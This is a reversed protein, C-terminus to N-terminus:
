APSRKSQVMRQVSTSRVLGVEKELREMQVGIKATVEHVRQEERTWDQESLSM